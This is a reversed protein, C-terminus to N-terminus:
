ISTTKIFEKERKIAFSLENKLEKLAEEFSSCEIKIEDYVYGYHYVIFTPSNGYSWKVDVHWHCDRDKHHSPSILKYWEDSLKTIEKIDSEM